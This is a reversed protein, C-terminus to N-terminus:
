LYLVLMNELLIKVKKWDVFLKKSIRIDKKLPVGLGSDDIYLQAYVKTSDTWRNQTPNKNIGYLPIDNNKFWRVADSLFNGEAGKINDNIENATLKTYKISNIDSRMTNLIINHGQKVLKKLVPVAGIDKGILPFEHTVCTGDFDIAIDM